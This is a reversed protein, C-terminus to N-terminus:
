YKAYHAFSPAPPNSARDALFQAHLMGGYTVLDHAFMEVRQRLRDSALEGEDTFDHRTHIDIGYPISWGYCQRIITRLHDQVTLGKEHSAVIIGFLKGMFEHWYYDLFNKMAGSPAGHYDPSSLIFADAWLVEERIQRYLPGHDKVDPNFLPLVSERLDLLRTQAGARAATELALGLIKRTRSDSHLSGAVGLIKTM